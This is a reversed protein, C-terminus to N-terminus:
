VRSARAARRAPISAIPGARRAGCCEGSKGGAPYFSMGM